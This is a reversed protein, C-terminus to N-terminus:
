KTAKTGGLPCGAENAAALLDKTASLAEAREDKNLPDPINETEVAAKVMALVEATTYKYNVVTGDANPVGGTSNLLAAVAHFAFTGYAQPGDIAMVLTVNSPLYSTVAFTDNFNDGPSYTTWRDVHNRWYGPTCGNVPGAPVEYCANYHSIAPLKSKNLPSVLWSDGTFSENVYDYVHYNPGGKIIFGLVKAGGKSEWALARNSDHLETEIFSNSYNTPPDVRLGRMEGTVEGLYGLKVLDYCVQNDDSSVFNGGYSGPAIGRYSVPSQNPNSTPPNLAKLAVAGLGESTVPGGGGCAVLAAATVIGLSIVRLRRTRKSVAHPM